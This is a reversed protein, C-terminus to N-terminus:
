GVWIVFRDPPLSNLMQTVEARIQQGEQYLQQWNLQVQAVPTALSEFKSRISGLWIMIDALALRKFLQYMDAPITNLNKHVTGYRVLAIDVKPTIYLYKPSEFEFTIAPAFYKAIDLRVQAELALRVAPLTTRTGLAAALSELGTSYDNNYYVEMVDLIPDDTPIEYKPVPYDQVLNSSTIVEYKKHPVYNSFEVLTHEQIYRIIQEDTLELENVPAGLHSKIYSLVNNWNQM